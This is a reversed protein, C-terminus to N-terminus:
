FNDKWSRLAAFVSVSDSDSIGMQASVSQVVASQDCRLFPNTDLELALSSPLTPQDSERKEKEKAVRTQLAPNEGDAAMAFKLNAMTYEHTCYVAAKPNLKALKSLSDFMMEPTGEFIRGCGAAFLTDGCFLIPTDTDDCYYAIHDLTHGPVELLQFQLGYLEITDGEHLFHTIGKINSPQPGYVTPHYTDALKALGGTHDPHHHTILIHSLQLDNAQLYALVPEADGPDVVTLSNSEAHHIAWIYNDTFAPIPHIKSM